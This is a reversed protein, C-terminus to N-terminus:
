RLVGNGRAIGRALGALVCSGVGAAAAGAFFRSAQPQGGQDLVVGALIAVIGSRGSATSAGLARM